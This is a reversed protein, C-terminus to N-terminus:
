RLRLVFHQVEVREGVCAVRVGEGIEGAVGAVTKGLGVDAVGGGEGTEEGIKLGVPDHVEGGLTVDVAGDIAGTRKYLGVDVARERQELGRASVVFFEGARGTFAKPKEVDGGVLDVTGEAGGPEEGFLRGVIGM